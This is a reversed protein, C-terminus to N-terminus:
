SGASTSGNISTLILLMIASLVSSLFLTATFVLSLRALGTALHFSRYAFVGTGFSMLVLLSFYAATLYASQLDRGFVFYAKIILLIAVVSLTLWAGVLRGVAIVGIM